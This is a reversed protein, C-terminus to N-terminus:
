WGLSSLGRAAALMLRVSLFCALSLLAIAAYWHWPRDVFCYFGSAMWALITLAITGLTRFM